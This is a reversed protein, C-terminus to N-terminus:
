LAETTCGKTFGITGAGVQGTHLIPTHKHTNEDFESACHECRKPHKHFQTHEPKMKAGCTTCTVFARDLDGLKILTGPPAAQIAAEYDAMSFMSLFEGEAPTDM